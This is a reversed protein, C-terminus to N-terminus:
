KRILSEYRAITKKYGDPMNISKAESYTFWDLEANEPSIIPLVINKIDCAYTLILVATANVNYIWADLLSCRDINLAAEEKIERQLCEVPDENLELKGGILEWEHRENKRLLYKENHYIIGKISVPFKQALHDTSQLQM